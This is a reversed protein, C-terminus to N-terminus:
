CGLWLDLSNNSSNPNVQMEIDGNPTKRTSIRTQGKLVPPEARMHINKTTEMLGREPEGDGVSDLSMCRPM